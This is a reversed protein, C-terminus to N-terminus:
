INKEIKDLKNKLEKTKKAIQMDSYIQREWQTDLERVPIHIKPVLHVHFHDVTKWISGWVIGDKYILNVEDYIQKLNKMWKKILYVLDNLENETMEDLLVFHRNPIILLHNETYPAKSLIVSFLKWEELIWDARLNCFPCKDWLINKVYYNYKM